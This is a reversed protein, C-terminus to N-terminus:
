LDRCRANDRGHGVWPTPPSSPMPSWTPPSRLHHSHVSEGTGPRPAVRALARPSSKFLSIDALTIPLGVETSVGCRRSRRVRPAKSSWNSSCGSPSKRVTSTPTPAPRWHNPWQPRRPGGGPGFSEFGLGSLLTNPRSWGSSHRPSSRPRRRLAARGDAILTRFCFEALALARDTSGGGRMNKVHGAVCTRAEFWTALADGMGAVLLRPPAQAIVETDVLVLDPNKRYFRYKRSSGRRETNSFGDTLAIRLM